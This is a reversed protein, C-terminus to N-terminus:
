RTPVKERLVWRTGRWIWFFLVSALLAATLGKAANKSLILHNESRVTEIRSVFARESQAMAGPEVVKPQDSPDSARKTADTEGIEGLNAAYTRFREGQQAAEANITRRVYYASLVGVPILLMFWVALALTLVRMGKLLLTEAQSRDSREGYFHLVVGLLLMPVRDVSGGLLQFLWAPNEVHVPIFQHIFDLIALMVLGLGALRLLGIRSVDPSAVSRTLRRIKWFLGGAVLAGLNWKVSNKYLAWMAESRDAEAKAVVRQETRALDALLQEKLKETDSLDLAGTPLNQSALAKVIEEARSAEVLKNRLDRVRALPQDPQTSQANFQSDLSRRIRGTDFVGLPILLLYSMALVLSLTSVGKLVSAELSGLRPQEGYCILAIGLLPLVAREVFAGIIQFEWTANMLRFPILLQVFDLGAFVLLGYGALRLLSISRAQQKSSLTM